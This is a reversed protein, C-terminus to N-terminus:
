FSAISVVDGNNLGVFATKGVVTVATNVGSAFGERWNLEGSNVDISFVASGSPVLISDRFVDPAGTITGRTNFDWLKDGEEVGLAYVLGDESGFCIIEDYFVPAYVIAKRAKYKWNLSGDRSIAYLTGSQCGAYLVGRYVRPASAFIRSDATFSWKVSGDRASIAYITSRDTGVYLVGSDGTMSSFIGEKLDQRWAEDGDRSFAQVVGYSSAIVITGSEVVPESGHLLTGEIKRKWNISGSRRDLSLLTGDVTVIYVAKGDTAPTSRAVGGLATRWVQTGNMDLCVLFGNKTTAFIFKNQYVPRAMVTSALSTKWLMRRGPRKESFSPRDVTLRANIKKKEGDQMTLSQTFENYGDAKITIVLKKGPVPRIKATDYGMLRSNAFIASGKASSTIALSTQDKGATEKRLLAEQNKAAAEAQKKKELDKRQKLALDAEKKKESEGARKEELRQQRTLDRSAEERKLAEGGGETRPANERAATYENQEPMIDGASAVIEGSTNVFVQRAESEGIQSLDDDYLCVRWYYAGAPINAIVAYDKVTTVSGVRNLFERDRALDVRRVGKFNGAACPFRISARKDDPGASVTGTVVPDGPIVADVPVVLLSSTASVAGGSGSDSLAGVRWYYRGPKLSDRLSYVNGAVRESVIVNRLDRDTGITFEYQRAQGDASWSFLRSGKKGFMSPSVRRGDPPSILTPPSAAAIRNISFISTVSMGTGSSVEGATTRVRWYYTGAELRDVSIEMLPTAVSHEIKKFSSDRSIELIYGSALRNERWRFNIIPLNISYPIIENNAPYLLGVPTDRFVSIKRVDSYEVAAATGDFGRLRWYYSGEGLNETFSDHVAARTVLGRTFKGDRALELFVGTVGRAASWAFRVPVATAATVVAANDRPFLPRLKLRSVQAGANRTITAKEDKQILKEEKGTRVDAKGETVTVDLEKDGARSLKVDAKELSVVADQSKINIRAADQNGVDGRDASITGHSFDINIGQGSLELLIMSNEDITIKTGDTLKIVAESLEATRITDNNYVPSDRGLDEWIVQSQYKRRADKKKFTIAGIRKAGGTEIRMAYDAYLLASCATIVLVTVGVAIYDAISNSSLKM